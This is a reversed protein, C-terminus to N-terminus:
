TPFPGPVYLVGLAFVGMLGWKQRAPLNLAKLAPMPLLFIIVDSVINIAATCFWITQQNACHGPISADWFKAIPTCMFMNACVALLGYAIVLAGSAYIARRM